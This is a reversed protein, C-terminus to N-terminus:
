FPSGLSAQRIHKQGFDGQRGRDIGLGVIENGMVWYTVGRGINLAEFTHQYDKRHDSSHAGETSGRNCRLYEPSHSCVM